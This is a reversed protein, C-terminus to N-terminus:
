TEPRIDLRASQLDSRHGRQSISIARHPEAICHLAILIAAYSARSVAAFSRLSGNGALCFPQM